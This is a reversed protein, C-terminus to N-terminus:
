VKRAAAKIANDIRKNAKVYASLRSTSHLAARGNLADRRRIKVCKSGKPVFTGDILHYSSKNLREGKCCSDAPCDGGGQTLALRPAAPPQRSVRGGSTVGLASESTRSGIFIGGPIQVGRQSTSVRGGATVLVQAAAARATAAAQRELFNGGGGGRLFGSVAGLPGGGLFGTVGGILRNHIFGRKDNPREAVPM